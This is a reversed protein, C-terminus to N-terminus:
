RCLPEEPRTFAFCGSPISLRSKGVVRANIGAGLRGCPSRGM